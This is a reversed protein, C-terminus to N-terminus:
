FKLVFQSGFTRPAGPSGSNVGPIIQTYYGRDTVNDLFLTLRWRGAGYGGRLNLLTYNGQAYFPDESETYFTKGRAVLEARGFFGRAKGYALSVDATYAPAYPARDGAFSQGTIPDNFERLTADTLGTAAGLTWGALPSGQAGLEVGLSRARPATAVFYDTPSFSREIQLDRIAYAFVRSSLMVTRNALSADVGAEFAATHEAAFPILPAKDTYPSFGGPKSGLSVSAHATVGPRLIRSIAIKPLLFGEDDHLHYHIGANPVQEDQLYDKSANELRLGLSIRWGAAPTLVADGFAASDFASDHYDSVEIPVLGLISRNAAGITRSDSLWAGTNWTFAAGPESALHVEESWTEQSQTLHSELPPPLVLWDDYPDLRWDTFSTVATLRGAPTDFAAKLAAGLTDTDTEGERARQVTYLPGGLPVLPQAGDRHGAALIELSIEGTTTPRFRGRAIASLAREDDVKQGIQTNTIYGDRRTYAAAISADGQPGAPGGAELAASGSDHDGAGVSLEGAAAAGQDPLRLVIVGGEGPRGFLSGQPGLYVSASAFGFLDTPYTFSSGLPIDDFYLGVAADSFYPTNALGRLTFVSGFSVPGSSSVQLNPVGAALEGWSQGSPYGERDLPQSEVSTAADAPPEAEVVIKEERVIPMDDTAQARAPVGAAILPLLSILRFAKL